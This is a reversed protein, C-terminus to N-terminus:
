EIVQTARLLLSPPIALGLAKATRRNIVLEFDRPAEVPLDAPKAGRLIKDVFAAARRFMATVNAGYSMLGGVEPAERWAFIGPLRHKLTLEAITKRNTYIVSSEMVSMANVGDRAAAWLLRDWAGPESGIDVVTLRLGLVKAAAQSETIWQTIGLGRVGANPVFAVHSAAPVAEKLFQLRKAAIDPGALTLGTVNGGPRALSAVVGGGVPDAAVAMVVPITATARKVAAATPTATTVIVDPKSGVLAAAARPLDDLSEAYHLEVSINRGEVWGV